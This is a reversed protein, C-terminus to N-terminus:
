GGCSKCPRGDDSSCHTGSATNEYFHCNKNHRTGSNTNLWYDTEPPEPPVGDRTEPSDKESTAARDPAGDRSEGAPLDSGNRREGRLWEEDAPTAELFSECADDLLPFLDLGTLEEIHDVTVVFQELMGRSTQEVLFALIRIEGKDPDEDTIIKWYGDPIEIGSPLLEVETDYWPGMVIWIEEFRPRWDDFVRREIAAWLGRNLGPDQPCINSLLFTAVQSDRGYMLNVARNPVMHGRDFGSHTFDDHVVQARTRSDKKFRSLRPTSEHLPSYSNLQFAAWAPARRVEDYGVMFGPNVLETYELDSHKPVGAYIIGDMPWSQSLNVACEIQSGSIADSELPRILLHLKTLEQRLSEIEQVIQNKQHELEHIKAEITEVRPDPVDTAGVVIGAVLLCGFGYVIRKLTRVQNRLETKENQM